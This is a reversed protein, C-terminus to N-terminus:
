GFLTREISQRAETAVDGISHDFSFRQARGIDFLLDAEGAAMNKLALAQGGVHPAITQTIFRWHGAHVQTPSARM